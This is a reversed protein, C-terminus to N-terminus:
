ASKENELIKYDIKGVLTKPLSERYVFEKPIM